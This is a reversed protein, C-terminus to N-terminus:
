LATRLGANAELYTRVAQAKVDDAGDFKFDPVTFVDGGPFRTQIDAATLARLLTKRYNVLVQGVKLAEAEPLLIPTIPNITFGLATKLTPNTDLYTRVAIANENPTGDFKFDPVTKVTGGPFLGAVDNSNLTELLEKRCNILAQGVILAENEPLFADLIPIVTFGLATRLEANANLYSRVATAREAPSGEFKFDPITKVTGNPFHDAIGTADLVGLLAKRREIVLTSIHALHGDAPLMAATVSGGDLFGLAKKLKVGPGNLYIALEAATIAAPFDPLDNLAKCEDTIKTGAASLAQSLLVKRQETVLTTIHNLQDDNPLMGITVTETEVFGLAKKLKIGPGNLYGVLNAATINVPLAPLDNLAKCEETIKTNTADLQRSLLAKRRDTILTKISDLDEPLVTSKVNVTDVFGLAKKLKDGQGPTNLYVALNSLTGSARFAPLDNLTKCEAIIKADNADLPQGLLAKRQEEVLAKIHTINNPLVEATVAASFGLTTRLAIGEGNLYNVLDNKTNKFDPLKSLANIEKLELHKADLSRELLEKRYALIAEGVAIAAAKPLDTENISNDGELGALVTTPFGLAGKLNPNENLYDVVAAAKQEDSGTFDFFPITAVTGTGQPFLKGIDDKTLKALLEKRYNLIANGVAIAEKDTLNEETVNDTNKFGFKSKLVQNDNLYTRVAEAAEEENEPLDVHPIQSITADPFFKKIQDVDLEQLLVSRRSRIENKFIQLHKHSIGLDDPRDHMELAESYGLHVCVEENDIIYNVINNDEADEALNPLDKLNEIQNLIAEDQFLDMRFDVIAEGIRLVEENSLLDASLATGNGLLASERFLNN